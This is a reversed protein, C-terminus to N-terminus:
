RLDRYGRRRKLRAIADLATGAEDETLYEEVKGALERQYAGTGGISGKSEDLLRGYL